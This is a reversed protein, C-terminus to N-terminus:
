RPCDYLPIIEPGRAGPSNRRATGSPAIAQRDKAGALALDITAREEAMKTIMDVLSGDKFQPTVMDLNM